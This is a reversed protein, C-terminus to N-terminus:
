GRLHRRIIRFMNNHNSYFYQLVRARLWLRAYHFIMSFRDIEFEHGYKKRLHSLEGSTSLRKMSSIGGLHFRVIDIDFVKVNAEFKARVFYELDGAIRFKTDFGGLLVFDSARFFVSQQLFGVGGLLMREISGQKYNLAYLFEGAEDIVCCNGVIFNFHPYDTLDLHNLSGDILEDGSNLFLIFDNSEFQLTLIKNMAEYVGRNSDQLFLVEFENRGLVTKIMEIEHSIVVWTFNKKQRILSEKTILL